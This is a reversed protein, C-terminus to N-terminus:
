VGGGGLGGGEGGKAMAHLMIGEKRSRGSGLGGSEQQERRVEMVRDRDEERLERVDKEKTVEAM